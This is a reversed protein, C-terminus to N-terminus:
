EDDRADQALVRSATREALSPRGVRLKGGAALEALARLSIALCCSTRPSALLLVQGRPARWAVMGDFVTGDALEARVREGVALN